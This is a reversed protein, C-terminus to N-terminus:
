LTLIVYAVELFQIAAVAQDAMEDIFGAWPLYPLAPLACAVSLVFALLIGGNFVTQGSRRPQIMQLTLAACILVLVVLYGATISQIHM